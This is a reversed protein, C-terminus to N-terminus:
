PTNRNKILTKLLSNLVAPFISTKKECYNCNDGVVDKRLDIFLLLLTKSVFAVLSNRLLERLGGEWNDGRELLGRSDVTTSLM